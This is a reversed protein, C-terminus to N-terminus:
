KLITIKRGISHNDANFKVIYNGTPLSSLDTTFKGSSVKSMTYEKVVSGLVNYVRVKIDAQKPLNVAINLIGNTVPNPYVAISNDLMEVNDIGVMGTCDAAVTGLTMVDSNTPDLWDKLRSPAGAYTPFNTQDFANDWAYSIKSYDSITGMPACSGTGDPGGSLDGILLGNKEFLGSGSSGQETGGVNFAVRWHTAPVTTQNFQGSGDVALSTSLKKVDGKPHHFGIFFDQNPDLALDSNRNWGNLYSGYSVPPKNKLELLLFDAVLRLATTSPFSPNNSRARFFAGNVTQGMPGNGPANACQALENNFYFIWQSFHSDERSNGEDCHSATLIYPKCNGGQANGTNNILTGSCWGATTGDNIFIKVTAKRQKEYGNGGPCIANIECPSSGDTPKLVVGEESAYASLESQQRYFAGVQNIHFDIDKVNVGSEIDMELNVTTGQIASSSFLGDGSNNNSTYAGLIQKGNGNTMYFRVGKPLRFRDYYFNLAEAENINLTLRWVKKGDKLYAFSGSNEISIDTNVMLAVRYPKAIGAKADIEDQKLAKAYDPAEISIAKITQGVIESSATSLSWPLGGESIQAHVAGGMSCALFVALYIKKMCRNKQARLNKLTYIYFNIPSGFM